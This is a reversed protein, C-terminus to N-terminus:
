SDGAWPNRLETLVGKGDFVEITALAAPSIDFLVYSDGPLELLRCIMARIVGGHAVALIRSADGKLMIDIARDVRESFERLQEGEPFVFEAGQSAWSDVMDPESAAIEDFTMKEWRGFDIERLDPVLEISPAADLVIEATKRTRLMPSCYCKEPMKERIYPAMSAAQEEGEAAIPVDSSGVLRGKLAKGTSGHRMLMLTKKDAMPGGAIKKSTTIAIFFDGFGNSPGPIGYEM